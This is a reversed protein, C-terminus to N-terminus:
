DVEPKTVCAGHAIGHKVELHRELSLDHRDRKAQGFPTLDGGNRLFREARAARQVLHQAGAHVAANSGDVSLGQESRAQVWKQGIPVRERGHYLAAVLNVLAYTRRTAQQRATRTALATFNLDRQEPNKIGDALQRWVYEAWVM